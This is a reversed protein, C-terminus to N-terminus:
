EGSKSGHRALAALVDSVEAGKWIWARAGVPLPAPRPGASYVIVPVRALRADQALVALFARGDMVPMDMDLLVVHIEVRRLQEIGVLGHEAMEVRYGSRELVERLVMRLGEHDDVLLVTRRSGPPVTV